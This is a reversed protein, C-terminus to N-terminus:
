RYKNNVRIISETIIQEMNSFVESEVTSKATRFYYKDNIKGRNYGKRTKRINTGLEFFKLRFDGMIHVTSQTADKNISAKIGSSLSKGTKKSIATISGKIVSKLNTRTQRILISSAKRLAKRYVERQQKSTLETFMNIVEKADVTVTNSM